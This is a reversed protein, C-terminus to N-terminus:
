SNAVGKEKHQKLQKYISKNSSETKAIKSM